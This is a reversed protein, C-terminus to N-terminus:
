VDYYYTIEAKVEPHLSRHVPCTGGAAEFKKRQIDTLAKPLHMSVAISEVRRPNQSMEKILTFHSGVLDVNDREAVIGIITMMCAGLSAAFLDTPSFLTGDGNNDKPAVTRITAGSDTHVLEMRKAGLYRGIIEVGM